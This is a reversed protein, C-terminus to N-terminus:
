ERGLVQNVSCFEAGLEAARDVLRALADRLTLGDKTVRDVEWYHTALVFVGRRRHCFELDALRKQFSVSPTLSHFGVERHGGFDLVHPYYAYPHKWVCKSYIMRALAPLERVGLPRGKPGFRVIQVIDFGARTVARYGTASLANHPPVFAYVPGGFVDELYRKAERANRELDDGTQFEYGEAEDVHSYGHAMISVRRKARQESLFAVLEHNDALPYVEDGAPWYEPPIGGTRTRGHFPVVSLSVPARAWIGEYVRM